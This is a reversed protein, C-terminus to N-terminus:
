PLNDGQELAFGEHTLTHPRAPRRLRGGNRNGMEALAALPFHRSTLYVSARAPVNRLRALGRDRFM